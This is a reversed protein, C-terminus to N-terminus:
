ARGSTTAARRQLGPPRRLRLCRSRGAVVSGARLRAAPLLSVRSRRTGSPDAACRSADRRSVPSTVGGQGGVLRVAKEEDEIVGLETAVDPKLCGLAGVMTDRVDQHWGRPARGAKAALDISADGASSLRRPRTEDGLLRQGRNRGGMGIRSAGIHGVLPFDHRYFHRLATALGVLATRAARLKWLGSCRGWEHGVGPV